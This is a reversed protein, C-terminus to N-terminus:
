DDALLAARESPMSGQSFLHGLGAASYTFVVCLDIPLVMNLLALLESEFERKGLARTLRALQDLWETPGLQEAALM